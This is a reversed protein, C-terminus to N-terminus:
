EVNFNGDTQIVASRALYPALGIYRFPRLEALIACGEEDLAPACIAIVKDKFDAQMINLHSKGRFSQASMCVETMGGSQRSLHKVIDYPSDNKQSLTDQGHKKPFRRLLMQVAEALVEWHCDLEALAQERDFEIKNLGKILSKWAVVTYGLPLGLNRMVTSDSLDRQLRSM